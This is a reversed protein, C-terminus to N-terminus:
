RRWTGNRWDESRLIGELLRRMQQRSRPAATGHIQLALETLQERIFDRDTEADRHESVLADIQMEHTANDSEAEREYSELQAVASALESEVRDVYQAPSEGALIGSRHTM